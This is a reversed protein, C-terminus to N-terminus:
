FFRIPIPFALVLFGSPTKNVDVGDTNLYPKILMVATPLGVLINKKSKEASM